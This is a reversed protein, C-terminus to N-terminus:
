QGWSQLWTEAFINIEVCKYVKVDLVLEVRRGRREVGVFVVFFHGNGPGRGVVRGGRSPVLM